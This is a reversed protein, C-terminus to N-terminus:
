AATARIASRWVSRSSVTLPGGTDAAKPGSPWGVGAAAPKARLVPDLHGVQGAGVRRLALIEGVQLPLPALRGDVHQGVQQSRGQAVQHKRFLHPPVGREVVAPALKGEAPRDPPQQEEVAARTGNV